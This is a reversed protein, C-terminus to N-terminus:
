SDNLHPEICHMISWKCRMQMCGYHCSNCPHIDCFDFFHKSFVPLSFYAQQLAPSYLSFNCLDVPVPPQVTCSTHYQWIFHLVFIAQSMFCLLTCPRNNCKIPVNVDCFWHKCVICSKIWRHLQVLYQLLSFCVYVIVTLQICDAFISLGGRFKLYYVVFSTM